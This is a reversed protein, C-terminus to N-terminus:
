KAQGKLCEDWLVDVTSGTITKFDEMVFERNQMKRHLKDVSGPHKEELWVLFKATVRYSDKYSNRKTLRAPLAWDKDKPGYVQRAYDAIGETLWGPEGRPYAQVVHTLEHTLLGVDNPNRQLWETSVTVTNGSAYAPVKIGKKFVVQVSRPAPRKPNEFREVLKPYCQYFLTTLKGAVPALSVDIEGSITISYPSAKGDPAKEQAEVEPQSVVTVLVLFVCM